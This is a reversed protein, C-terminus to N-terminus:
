RLVQRIADKTRECETAGTLVVRDIYKVREVEVVKRKSNAGQALVVQQKLKTDVAKITVMYGEIQKFTETNQNLQDTAKQLAPLLKARVEARGAERYPEAVYHRWAVAGGGMFVLIGILGAAYRILLNM